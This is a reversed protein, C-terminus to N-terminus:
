GCWSSRQRNGDARRRPRGARHMQRLLEAIYGRADAFGQRQRLPVGDFAAEHVFAARSHNVFPELAVRLRKCYGLLARHNYAIRAPGINLYMHPSRDFTCTQVSDTETMVDGGRM